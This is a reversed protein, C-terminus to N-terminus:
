AADKIRRTFAQWQVPTFTLVARHPNKSDRVTITAPPTAAVQVCNGGNASRRSTRWQVPPLDPSPAAPM